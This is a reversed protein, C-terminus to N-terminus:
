YVWKIKGADFIRYIKNELCIEHESKNSNGFNKFLQKKRFNFKHYKKDKIIYSYDPILYKNIKFGIKNYLKGYSYDNKSFSIIQNYDHNKIFHNFLKSAGGVVNTNLKNCFRNLEYNEKIKKFTMLSVLVNEFFLGLKVSSGVFGQIHNDNLFSRIIKNDIIEKIETKRAFIKSISKGLKNLIMSKIIDERYQWDDEYIHLLQIEKDQCKKTKNYHYNKPKYIESHWYLGNFEFALNIEPLYIDLEKGNLIKRDNEIIEGDYNEKIFNLLQIELGSIQKDIPNCKTCLCTKYEKRKYYLITTIDYTNNCLPCRITLLKDKNNIIIINTDNELTKKNLTNYNSNRIKNKIENTKSPIEDGYKEKNTKKIKEQIEKNLFVYETNWKKLNHTKLDSKFKEKVQSLEKTKQKGVRQQILRRIEDVIKQSSM